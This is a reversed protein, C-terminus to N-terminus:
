TNAIPNRCVLGIGVLLPLARDYNPGLTHNLTLLAIFIGLPGSVAAVRSAGIRITTLVPGVRPILKILEWLPGKTWKLLTRAAWRAAASSGAASVGTLDLWIAKELRARTEPDLEDVSLVRETPLMETTLRDLRRWVDGEGLDLGLKREYKDVLDDLANPLLTQGAPSHTRWWLADALRRALEDADADEPFWVEAVDLVRELQRRDRKALIEQVEQRTVTM